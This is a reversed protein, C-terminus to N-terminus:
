WGSRVRNRIQWWVIGGFLLLLGTVLVTQMSVWPEEPPTFFQATLVPGGNGVIRLTYLQNGELGKVEATHKDAEDAFRVTSVPTWSFNLGGGAKTSARRELVSFPPGPKMAVPWELVVSHATADRTFKGPMAPAEAVPVSVLLDLKPTKPASRSAAPNAPKPANPVTANPAAPSVPAPTVAPPPADVAVTFPLAEEHGGAQVVLTASHSGPTPTRWRVPIKATGMPPVELGAAILEFPADVRVAAMATTGGSNEVTVTAETPAGAAVKGFDLTTSSFKLKAPFADGHVPVEASWTDSELRLKENIATPNDASAFIPIERAESPGVTISADVLLRASATVKVVKPQGTRNEVRFKGSRTSNGTPASMEVTAPTLELTSKAVGQLAVTRRPTPGFTATGQFDGAKEPAFVIRFDASRGAGLAYHTGGDIRWPDTVALDGEATGGGRNTLTITSSSKQGAIVESFTLQEETILRPPLVPAIAITISVQGPASVGDNTRVAYLFRDEGAEAGATYQITATNVGTSQIKSLKGRKPQSRILFDLQEGRVGHIALPVQVSEGPQLTVSRAVVPPPAPALEPENRKREARVPQPSLLALSTALLLLYKLLRIV